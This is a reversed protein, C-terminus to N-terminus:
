RLMSSTYSTNYHMWNSRHHPGQQVDSPISFSPLVDDSESKARYYKVMNKILKCEKSLLRDEVTYINYAKIKKKRQCFFIKGGDFYLISFEKLFSFQIIYIYFIVKWKWNQFTWINYMKEKKLLFYKAEFQLWFFNKKKKVKLSFISMCIFIYIYIVWRCIFDRTRCDHPKFRGWPRVHEHDFIARSWM